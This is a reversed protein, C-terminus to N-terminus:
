NNKPHKTARQLVVLVIPAGAVVPATQSIEEEPQNDPEEATRLNKARAYERMMAGPNGRLKRYVFEIMLFIVDSASVGTEEIATVVSDYGVTAPSGIYNPSDHLHVKWHGFFAEHDVAAM